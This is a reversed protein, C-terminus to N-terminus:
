IATRLKENELASIRSELESLETIKAYSNALSSLSNIARIRSDPENSDNMYITELERLATSMSARLEDISLPKRTRRKVAM